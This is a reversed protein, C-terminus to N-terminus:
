RGAPPCSPLLAQAEPESVPHCQVRMTVAGVMVTAKLWYSRGGEVQLISLDSNEAEVAIRAEGPAREWCLQARSGLRGVERGTDLVVVRYDAAYLDPRLVHIRAVDSAPPRSLDPLPLDQRTSCAGLLLVAALFALSRM